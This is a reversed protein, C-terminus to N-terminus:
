MRCALKPVRQKQLHLTKAGSVATIHREYAKESVASCILMGLGGRWPLYVHDGRDVAHEIAHLGM